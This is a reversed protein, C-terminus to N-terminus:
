EDSSRMPEGGGKKDFYCGSTNELSPSTCIHFIHNASDPPTTTFPFWPMITKMLFQLPYSYDRALDTSPVFGPCLTNVTVPLEGGEREVEEKFWRKRLFRDLEYAFWVNCLKSNTYAQGGNYA